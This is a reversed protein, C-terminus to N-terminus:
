VNATKPSKTRPKPVPSSQQREEPCASLRNATADAPQPVTLYNQLQPEKPSLMIEYDVDRMRIEGGDGAGRPRRRQRRCCLILIITLVLLVLGAGGVFLAQVTKLSFCHLDSPTPLSRQCVPKVTSSSERSVLNAASCMFSMGTKVKTLSVSLTQTKTTLFQGDAVWSFEVGQTKALHCNLNVSSASFDCRYSLEPKPVNDLVCVRRSWVAAQTNNAHLVFVKYDGSSSLQLDKLSLSGTLSVDIANGISVYGRQRYFLVTKNHTWRVVHFLSLRDFIFPLTLDQGVARYFDCDNVALLGVLGTLIVLLPAFCAM